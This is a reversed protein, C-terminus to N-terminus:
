RRLNVQRAGTPLADDLALDYTRTIISTSTSPYVTSDFWHDADKARKYTSRYDLNNEIHLTQTIETLLPESGAPTVTRTGMRPSGTGGYTFWYVNQTQYRGTYPEAYFVLLDGSEFQGNGNKDIMRIDVPAGLYSVAFTAPDATAIAADLGVLVDRDLRYLGRGGTRIRLAGAGATQPLAAPNVAGQSGDGTGQSRDGTGQSRDGTGQSRDGSEQVSVTVRLDAYYRLTGAVPNYQFPFVRLPLLRRGGQWQVAGAEVVSAPYFADAAYIAPDPRDVTRVDAAQDMDALLGLPNPAPPEPVPAAPLPGRYSSCKPRAAKWRSSRSM